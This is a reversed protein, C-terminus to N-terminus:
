ITASHISSYTVKKNGKLFSINPEYLIVYAIIYTTLILLPVPRNIKKM